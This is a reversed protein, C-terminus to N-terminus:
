RPYPRKLSLKVDEFAVGGKSKFSDSFNLLIPLKLDDSKSVLWFVLFEFLVKVFNFFGDKRQSSLM